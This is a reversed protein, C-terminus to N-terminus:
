PKPKDNEFVQVTIARDDYLHAKDRAQKKEASTQNFKYHVIVGSEARDIIRYIVEHM